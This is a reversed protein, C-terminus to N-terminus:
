QKDKNIWEILRESLMNEMNYLGINKRYLWRVCSLAGRGFARRSIAEHTLYITQYPYGFIIEHKGLIGGARISHISNNDVGLAEAIKLSTGSKERKTKFHSEVIQIDADPTVSKIFKGALTLLNVGLTINPSWLIATKESLNNLIDINKQSYNSIATVIKIHKNALIEYYEIFSEDSFDVIVSVPNNKIFQENFDSLPFIKGKQSPHLLIKSAYQYQFENTHKIVWSIDITDDEIFPVIAEKGTKGFGIFGVKIIEM